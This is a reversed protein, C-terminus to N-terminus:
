ARGDWELMAVQVELGMMSRKLKAEAKQVMGVVMQLERRGERHLSNDKAGMRVGRPEEVGSM